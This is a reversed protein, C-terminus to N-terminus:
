VHHTTEQNMDNRQEETTENDKGEVAIPDDDELPLRAANDFESKRKNSYAWIVIGFFLVPVVVTWVSQFIVLLEM